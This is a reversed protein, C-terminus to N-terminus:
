ARTAGPRLAIISVVAGIGMGIYITLFRWAFIVLVLRSPDIQGAMLGAFALESFGAGGPSPAFYMLFTVVSLTGIVTLWDPEQGLLAMLLAPTAFLSLLFLLTSLVAAASHRRPGSLFRRFGEAFSASERRLADTWRSRRDPGLLHAYVLLALVSDLVRLLWEPRLLLVLFGTLYLAIVAAISSILAGSGGALNVAPAGILFLPAAIFIALMALITRITTAAAALGVPVGRRQLYYIQAFGGGTAMPTINSFFINVFVLPMVQRFSVPADLTRLVFHLRLGDTLFYIALFLGILGLSWLELLRPDIRLRGEGLFRALGWFVSLSLMLFLAAGLWLRASDRSGKEREGTVSHGDM